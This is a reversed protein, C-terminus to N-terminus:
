KSDKERSLNPLYIVYEGKRILKESVSRLVARKNVLDKSM